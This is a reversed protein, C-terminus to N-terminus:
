GDDYASLWQVTVDRYRSLGKYAVLAPHLDVLVRHLRRAWHPVTVLEALSMLYCRISFVIGNSRPLRWLAQLEVRLHVKQGVNELRVSNRDLGWVPYQEPSTDLRPNITMTWNLRRVPHGLQLNMLFKKARDFVGLEHALPVPGHWETFNMGLDFNLSWDAQTTVMGADMWLDGDRQDMICWDGQAQRTIYELPEYPLTSRDGFVFRTELELPRNIWQWKTGDRILTFYEPYDRALSTMILELVDWQAPMMHPLSLYRDTTTALCIARERCEAIYHEDIDVANAFCSGLPGPTHPEINVSYMFSDESFPFPFRLIAERSNHFTFDGRYTEHPKFQM